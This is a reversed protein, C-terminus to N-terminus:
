DNGENKREAVQPIEHGLERLKIGFFQELQIAVRFLLVFLLACFLLAFVAAAFLLRLFALLLLAALVLLSVLVALFLSVSLGAGLVSVVLRVLGMLLM